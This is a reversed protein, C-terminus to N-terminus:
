CRKKEDVDGSVVKLDQTKMLMALSSNESMKGGNTKLLMALSDKM